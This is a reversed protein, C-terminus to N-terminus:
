AARWITADMVSRKDGRFEHINALHHIYAEMKGGMWVSRGLRNFEKPLVHLPIQNDAISVNLATQEIMPNVVHGAKGLTRKMKECMWWWVYSHRSHTWLIFGGNIYTAPDYEAAAGTEHKVAHWFAAHDAHPDDHTDGQYNLVGGLHTDPVIQFPNPCDHRVLMDGDLWLIRCDPPLDPLRNLEMKAGFTDSREGWPQTLHRLECGWRRAADQVSARANAPIYDGFNMQVILKQM